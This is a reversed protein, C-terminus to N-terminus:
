IFLSFFLIRVNMLPFNQEIDNGNMHPPPSQGNQTPIFNTMAPTRQLQNLPPQINNYKNQNTSSPLYPFYNNQTTLSSTKKTQSIPLNGNGLM